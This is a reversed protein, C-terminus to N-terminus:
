IVFEYHYILSGNGINNDLSTRYWYVYCFKFPFMALYDYWAMSFSCSRVLIYLKVRSHWKRYRVLWPRRPRRSDFCRGIVITCPPVLIICIWWQPYSSYSWCVCCCRWYMEIKRMRATLLSLNFLFVFALVTFWWHMWENELTVLAQKKHIIMTWELFWGNESM